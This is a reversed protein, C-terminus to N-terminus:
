FIRIQNKEGIPIRMEIHTTNERVIEYKASHYKLILLNTIISIKDSVDKSILHNSIFAQENNQCDEILQAIIEADTMTFLVNNGDIKSYLKSNQSLKDALSLMNSIFQSILRKNCFLRTNEYEINITEGKATTRKDFAKEALAIIESLYFFAFPFAKKAKDEGSKETINALILIILLNHYVSFTNRLSSNLLQLLEKNDENSLTDINSALMDSLGIVGNFQTGIDAYAASLLSQM